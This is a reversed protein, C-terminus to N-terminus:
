GPGVDSLTRAAAGAGEAPVVEQRYRRILLKVGQNIKEAKRRLEEKTGSCEKACNTLM